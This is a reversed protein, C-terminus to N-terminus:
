LEKKGRRVSLNLFRGSWRWWVWLCTITLAVGIGVHFLVSKNLIASRGLEAALREAGFQMKSLHSLVGSLTCTICLSWSPLVDLLRFIHQSRQNAFYTSVFHLCYTIRASLTLINAYVLSTDGLGLRYLCITAFIYIISFVVM